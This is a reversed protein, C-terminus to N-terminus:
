KWWGMAIEVDRLSVGYNQSFEYGATKWVESSVTRFSYTNFIEMYENILDSSLNLENVVQDWSYGGFFPRSFRGIKQIAVYVVPDGSPDVKSISPILNLGGVLNHINVGMNGKQKVLMLNLYNEDNNMESIYDVDDRKTHDETYIKGNKM